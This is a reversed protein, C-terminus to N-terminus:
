GHRRRWKQHEGPINDVGPSKRRKMSSNMVENVEEELVQAPEPTPDSKETGILTEDVKIPHQYLEKCYESWRDLVAKSDTLLNGNKDEIM